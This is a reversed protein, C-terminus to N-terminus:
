EPRQGRFRKVALTGFVLFAVLSVLTLAPRFWALTVPVRDPRMIDLATGLHSRRCATVVCGCGTPLRTAVPPPLTRVRNARVKTPFYGLGGAM